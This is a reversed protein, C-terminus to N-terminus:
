QQSSSPVQNVTVSLGIGGRSINQIGVAGAQVNMIGVQQSSNVGVQEEADQEAKAKKKQLLAAPYSESWNPGDIKTHCNCCLIICNDISSREDKTLNEDYRPGGPSRATIHAGEGINM